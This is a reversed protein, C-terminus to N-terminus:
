QCSYCEVRRHRCVDVVAAGAGTTISSRAPVQHSIEEALTFIAPLSFGAVGTLVEGAKMMKKREM